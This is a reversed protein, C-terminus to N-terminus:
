GLYSYYNTAPQPRTDAGGPLPDAVPSQYWVLSDAQDLAQRITIKFVAGRWNYPGPAGILL